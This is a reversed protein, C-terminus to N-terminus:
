GGTDSNHAKARMRALVAALGVGLVCVAGTAIFGWNFAGSSDKVVGLAYAFVLAGLNAFMNSFGASMGAVRPGLAELPISFLPGFYFQLFVSNVAIVLVLLPISDVVVVLGSTLALVALSAGIVLPPNRLRDSVYGGLPNASATLAAGMATILGAAELSLGRDSVLLSPLWFNFSTTVGFRIFQIGACVWMIPYRFLRFADLMGVPHRPGTAPKERGLARYVFAIGVGLLAFGMFTPRWGYHGALLPGVLSLLVNGSVGGIVYVGMATAKRDPPFWSAVLTLGPAFILARFAGSAIQNAIAGAYTQLTGFNFSLLTSGLIGIFFLRRPGFRDALVGAPIQGLTYTFTSAASLMGAQAFSMGLDERILPLFLAIGGVTLMNFGQCVVVLTVTLAADRKRSAAADSL